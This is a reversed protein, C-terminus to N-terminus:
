EDQNVEKHEEIGTCVMEQGCRKCNWRKGVYMTVGNRTSHNCDTM